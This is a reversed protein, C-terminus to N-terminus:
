ESGGCGLHVLSRNRPGSEAGHVAAIFTIGTMSNRSRRESASSRLRGSQGPSFSRFRYRQTVRQPRDERRSRCDGGQAATGALRFLRPRPPFSAQSPPLAVDHASARGSPAAHGRGAGSRLHDKVDYAPIQILGLGALCCAIYAEASNVTIPGQMPTSRLTGDEIWEWLEVKGTSPSAYRVALHAKLDDPTQPTGHRALYAPSAVNILPLIGIPRAILESNGLPGVRLACDINEGVLDVTRDTLGMQLEIEPYRAVFDPLAPAVILRGIRGPMDVHLKGAPRKGDRRFTAEAEEVDAILRLCREYFLLGDQTASV